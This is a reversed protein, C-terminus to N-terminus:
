MAVGCYNALFDARRTLKSDTNILKSYSCYEVVGYIWSIIYKKQFPHFGITFCILSWSLPMFDKIITVECLAANLNNLNLWEITADYM